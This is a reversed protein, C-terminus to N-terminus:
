HRKEKFCIEIDVLKDSRDLSVTVDSFKVPYVIKKLKSLSELSKALNERTFVDGEILNILRRRLV